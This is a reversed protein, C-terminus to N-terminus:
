PVRWTIPNLLERDPVTLKEVIGYDPLKATSVSRINGELQAKTECGVIVFDIERFQLPYLLCYDAFPIGQDKAKARLSDLMPQLPALSDPVKEMMLLGQLYASRVFIKKGAAKAKLIVPGRYGWNDFLNFPMQICDIESIACASYIQENTYVSVGLAAVHGSQKLDFFDQRLGPHNKLDNFDHLWMGALKSIKLEELAHKVSASFSGYGDSHRFKSYIELDERKSFKQLLAQSTGYTSATDVARIGAAFAAELIGLGEAESPVGAKNNVGYKMGVQATGLALRQIKTTEAM